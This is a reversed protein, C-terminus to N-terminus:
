KKCWFNQKKVCFIKSKKSWNKKCWIKFNLFNNKSFYITYFPSFFAFFPTFFCFITYFFQHLFAFFPTFFNTYFIYVRCFDLYIDAMYTRRGGDENPSILRHQNRNSLYRGTLNQVLSLGADGELPELPVVGSPM